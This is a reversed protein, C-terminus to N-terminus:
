LLAGERWRTQSCAKGPVILGESKRGAGDAKLWEAKYTRDKSSEAAPYSREQEARNKRLTGGGLVGPLDLRGEPRSSQRNGEGHDSRSPGGLCREASIKDLSNREGLTAARQNAEWEEM